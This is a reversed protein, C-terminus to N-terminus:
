ASPRDEVAARMQRDDWVFRGPQEDVAAMIMAAGVLSAPIARFRGLPGRLAPDLVTLLRQALREGTRREAREGLLLGPRLIVVRPFGLGNVAAETEGKVRLYFVSSRPDAGAASVLVFTRAGGARAWRAFALVGDHDVKRFAAQSGAKAITTGLASLGARAAVPPMGALQELGSVVEQLAAHTVGVPRRGVAVVQSFWDGDLLLRLTAAGVLGTAGALLVTKDAQSTM